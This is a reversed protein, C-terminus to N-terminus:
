YFLLLLTCVFTLIVDYYKHWIYSSSHLWAKMYVLWSIRITLWVVFHKYLVCRWTATWISGCHTKRLHIEEFCSCSAKHSFTIHSASKWFLDWSDEPDCLKCIPREDNDAVLNLVTYYAFLVLGLICPDYWNYIFWDIIASNVNCTISLFM